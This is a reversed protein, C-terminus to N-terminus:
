APPKTSREKQRRSQPDIGGVVAWQAYNEPTAELKRPRWQDTCFDEDAYYEVLGGGPSFFYWFFASSVPHRGPGIQTEHGCQQFYLGGGMVEYIDRLGFSVHNVGRSRHPVKLMFLDHHPGNKNCRLFMGRGPYEDSVEFGLRKTYFERVAELDDVFFVVHSLRTPHAREYVPAPMDIRAPTDITNTQVGRVDAPKRIARQFRLSLGNPDTWLFAGDDLDRAEDAALKRLAKLGEDSELGWVVQRVTPGEEIAPPLAPDDKHQLVIQSKELTEFVSKTQSGSIQTLGWDNFFATAQPLNEVGYVVGDLGTFGYM